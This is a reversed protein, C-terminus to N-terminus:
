DWKKSIDIYEGDPSQYNEIPPTEVPGTLQYTLLSEDIDVAAQYLDESVERLENLARQQSYELDNIVQLNFFHENHKYMSWAKTAVIKEELKDSSHVVVPRQRSGCENSLLAMLQVEDIPKLTKSVKELKRISKEIKKRKRDERAKLIQPDLRKKKKLPEGFMPASSRFLLPGGSTSLSRSGVLVSPHMAVSSFLKFM